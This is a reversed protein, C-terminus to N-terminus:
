EEDTPAFTPHERLEGEEFYIQTIVEVQLDLFQHAGVVHGRGALVEGPKIREHPTNARGPFTVLVGFRERTMEDKTFQHGTVNVSIVQDFDPPRTIWHALFFQQETGFLIYQLEEAKDARGLEQFHIVDDVHVTAGEAIV